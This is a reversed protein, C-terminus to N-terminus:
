RIQVDGTTILEEFTIINTAHRETKILDTLWNFYLFCIANRYKYIISIYNDPRMLGQHKWLGYLQLEYTVVIYHVNRCGNHM